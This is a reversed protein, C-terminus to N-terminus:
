VLLYCLVTAMSLHIGAADLFQAVTMPKPNDIDLSLFDKDGTLLLINTAILVRM